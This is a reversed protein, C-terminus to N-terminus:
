KHLHERKLAKDIKSQAGKIVVRIWERTYGEKDSIEQLTLGSHHYLLYWNYERPILISRMFQLIQEFEIRNDDPMTYFDKRWVYSRPKMKQSIRNEYRRAAEDGEIYETSREKHKKSKRMYAQLYAKVYWRAYSMFRIGRSPDFKGYAHILGLNAEQILDEIEVYRSIYPRLLKLLLRQHREMIKNRAEITGELFLKREEEPDDFGVPLNKIAEEYQPLSQTAHIM